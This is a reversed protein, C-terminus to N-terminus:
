SKPSKKAAVEMLFEPGACPCETLEDLSKAVAVFQRSLGTTLAAPPVPLAAWIGGQGIRQDPQFFHGQNPMEVIHGVMLTGDQNMGYYRQDLRKTM